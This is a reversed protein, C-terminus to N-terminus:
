SLLGIHDDIITCGHAHSWICYGTLNTRQGAALHYEAQSKVKFYSLEYDRPSALDSDKLKPKAAQHFLGLRRCIGLGLGRTGIADLAGHCQWHVRLRSQCQTVSACLLLLKLNFSLWPNGRM